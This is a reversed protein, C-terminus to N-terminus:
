RRSRRAAPVAAPTDRGVNRGLDPRGCDGVYLNRETSRRKMRPPPTSPTLGRGPGCALDLDQCVGVVVGLPLLPGGAPHGPVRVVASVWRVAGEGRRSPAWVMEVRGPAWGWNVVCRRP